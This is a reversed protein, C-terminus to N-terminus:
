FQLNLGVNAIIANDVVGDFDAGQYRVLARINANDTVWYQAGGGIRGKTEWQSDSSALVGNATVDAKLYTVGATAILEFHGKDDVPLYALADFNGGSLNVKTNSGTGLVNDKSADGTWTYGVEFGLNKHIRAGAHINAGHLSEALIDSGNIGTGQINDSYNINTYQYDAGAYPKFFFDSAYANTAFLLPLLAFLKKM